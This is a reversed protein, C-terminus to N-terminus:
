EEKILHKTHEWVEKCKLTLQQEYIDKMESLIRECDEVSLIDIFAMDDAHQTYHVVELLENYARMSRVKLKLTPSTM